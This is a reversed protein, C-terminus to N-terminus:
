LEDGSAKRFRYGVNRVTEILVAGEGLKARLSKVHTDITRDLVIANEGLAM